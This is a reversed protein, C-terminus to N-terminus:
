AELKGIEAEYKQRATELHDNHEEQQKQVEKDQSIELEVIKSSHISKLEDVMKKFRSEEDKITQKNKKRIETLKAELKNRENAENSDYEKSIRVLTSQNNEKAKDLEVKLERNNKRMEFQHRADVAEQHRAHIQQKVGDM